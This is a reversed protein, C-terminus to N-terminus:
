HLHNKEPRTQHLFMINQPWVKLVIQKLSQQKDWRVEVSVLNETITQWLYLKISGLVGQAVQAATSKTSQM